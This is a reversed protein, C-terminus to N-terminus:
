EQRDVENRLTEFLNNGLYPVLFFTVVSVGVILMLFVSFVASLFERGSQVNAESVVTNGKIKESLFPILISASFLSAFALSTFEKLYHLCAFLTCNFFRPQLTHEGLYSSAGAVRTTNSPRKMFQAVEGM